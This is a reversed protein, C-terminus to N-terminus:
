AKFALTSVAAGAGITRLFHRRNFTYSM